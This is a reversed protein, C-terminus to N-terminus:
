ILQQAQAIVAPSRLNEKTRGRRLGNLAPTWPVLRRLSCLTTSALREDALLGRSSHPGDLAPILASQSPPLLLVRTGM